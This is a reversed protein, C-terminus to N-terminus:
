AAHHSQPRASGHAAAVLVAIHAMDVMLLASCDQAISAFREFDLTGPYASAGAIILKPKHEAALRALDDYDITETDKDVGYAVVKYMKGSFASAAV